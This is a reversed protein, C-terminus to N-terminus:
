CGVYYRILAPSKIAGNPNGVQVKSSASAAGPFQKLEEIQMYGFVQIQHAIYNITPDRARHPMPVAVLPCHDLFNVLEVCASNPDHEQRAVVVFQADIKGLGQKSRERYHTFQDMLDGIAASHQDSM